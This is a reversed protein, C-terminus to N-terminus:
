LCQQQQQRDPGRFQPAHHVFAGRDIHQHHLAVRRRRRHVSLGTGTQNEAVSVAASSDITPAANPQPPSPPSSDDGGLGLALGGVGIGLGGLGGLIAGTSLGGGAAGACIEAVAEPSIFIGDPTVAVQDAPLVIQKGNDLTVRLTGNALQEVSAVHKVQALPVFGEQAPAGQAEARSAALAAVLAAAAVSGLRTLRAGRRARLEASAISLDRGQNTM